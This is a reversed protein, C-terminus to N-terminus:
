DLLRSGGRRGIVRGGKWANPWDVESRMLAIAAEVCGSTSASMRRLLDCSGRAATDGSRWMRRHADDALGLTGFCSWTVADESNLRILTAPM